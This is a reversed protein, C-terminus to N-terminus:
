GTRIRYLTRYEMPKVDVVKDEPYEGLGPHLDGQEQVARIIFTGVKRAISVTRGAVTIKTTRISVLV